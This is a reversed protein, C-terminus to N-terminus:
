SRPLLQPCSQAPAIVFAQRCTTTLPLDSKPLGFASGHSCLLALVRSTCSTVDSLCLPSTAIFYLVSPGWSVEHPQILLFMPVTWTFLHLPTHCLFSILRSHSPVLNGFRMGLLFYPESSLLWKALFRHNWGLCSNTHM